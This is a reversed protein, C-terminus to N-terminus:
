AGAPSGAAATAPDPLQHLTVQPCVERAIDCLHRHHSLYITQGSQAMDAFVRFTEEARFDDFTELIDDAFFPVPDHQRVFERYCAVRLALYLQFRTGKSMEHALKAGGDTSIGILVEGKDGPQSALSAYAGRSITAFARSANEMMSSRHADRYVRLASEAAAVGLRIRLYALAHEEIELLTTCRRQELRAAADDGGVAAIADEAKRFVYIRDQKRGEADGIRTDIEASEEEITARDAGELLAEAQKLSGAKMAHILRKESEALNGRLEVRREVQQLKGKVALLSDVTFAKFRDGAVAHLDTRENETQALEECVQELKEQLEGRRDRAAKARALRSKLNDSQAVAQAPDLSGGLEEFLSEIEAVFRAQDQEMASIRTAMNEYKEHAADLKAVETLIHRAEPVSPEPM